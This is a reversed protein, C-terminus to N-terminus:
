ATAVLDGINLEIEERELTSFMNWERNPVLLVKSEGLKTTVWLSFRDSENKPLGVSHVKTNLKTCIDVTANVTSM